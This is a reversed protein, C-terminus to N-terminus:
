PGNHRRGPARRERNEKSYNRIVFRDFEIFDIESRFAKGVPTLDPPIQSGPELFKVHPQYERMGFANKWATTPKRQGLMEKTERTYLQKRLSQIDDIACNRRTLRVGVSHNTPAVGPIRVIGGVIFVMFRTEIVDSKISVPAEQYTHELGDLPKTAEYVTLHMDTVISQSRIGHSKLFDRIRDQCRKEVMLSAYVRHAEDKRRRRRSHKGPKM